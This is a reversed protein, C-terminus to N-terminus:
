DCLGREDAFCGSSTELRPRPKIKCLIENKRRIIGCHGSGNWEMGDEPM